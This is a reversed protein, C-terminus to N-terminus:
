VDADGSLSTARLPHLRAYVPLTPLLRRAMVCFHAASASSERAEFADGRNRHDHDYASISQEDIIEIRLDKAIRHILQGTNGNRRSSAFLAIAAQM